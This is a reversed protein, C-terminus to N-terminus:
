TAPGYKTVAPVPRKEPAVPAPIVDVSALTTLEVAIASSTPDRRRAYHVWSPQPLAGGNTVASVTVHPRRLLDVPGRRRGDAVRRRARLLPGGRTVVTQDLQPGLQRLLTGATM